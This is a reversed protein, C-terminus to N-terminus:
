PLAGHRNKSLTSHDQVPAEVANPWCWGAEGGLSARFCDQAENKNRQSACAFYSKLGAGVTRAAVSAGLCRQLVKM